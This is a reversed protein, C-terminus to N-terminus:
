SNDCIQNIHTIIGQTISDPTSAGATVGVTKTGRFWSKRIETKTHVWYSRPNLRKSIEYLRKTNASTKSGIIIMVDNELPMRKAEKQKNRTPVCITNFFELKKIRRKLISLISLVSEINQTSQVVVCAKKIKQLAKYPIRSVPDIVIAKKKLQGIIGLVEDHARDGIVIVSCGKKESIRAITHIEKVMPCTADLIHYGLRKAQKLTSLGAGHARILLLTDPARTLRKIKKVGADKIQRVVEENHVIEGLMCVKGKSSAQMAIKLARKVGFCFGASGALNIKM